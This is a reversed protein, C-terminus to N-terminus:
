ENRKGSESSIGEAVPVRPYPIHHRACAQKVRLVLDTKYVFEDRADMPYAKLRLHTAWPKEEVIVVVPLKLQTYRSSYAAQYLLQSVLEADADHAVYFDTVVQAELEGSNANAIPNTWATNHPITVTDDSPTQLRVERLGYDVVEGYYDGIRVRDGMRFSGEFLTVIGAIISSVYDKFAFGLAVAITGTLAIVNSGSLNVFLQLQRIITVILVLAKLFPVSQKIILRFRRPVKESIGTTFSQIAVLLGYAIALTIVARVVTQFSPEKFLADLREASPLADQALLWNSYAQHMM